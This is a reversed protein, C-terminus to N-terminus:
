VLGSRSPVGSTGTRVSHSSAESLYPQTGLDQPQYQPQYQVPVEEDEEYPYCACCSCLEISETNSKQLPEYRVEGFMPIVSVGKSEVSTWGNPELRLKMPFVSPQGGIQLLRDFEDRSVVFAGMGVLAVIVPALIVVFVRMPIEAPAQIPIVEGVIVVLVICMLTAMSYLIGATLQPETLRFYGVQNGYVIYILTASFIGLLGVLPSVVLRWEIIDMRRDVKLVLLVMSFFFLIWCILRLIHQTKCVTGDFIAGLVIIWIPILALGLSISGTAIKLYLLIEFVFIFFSLLGTKLGFKLSRQLLPLYETRDLHDTSDQRQRNENAETIFFSLARASLVHCIFLGAHSIWAPSLIIWYPIDPLLKTWRAMLLGTTASFGIALVLWCFTLPSLVSLAAKRVAYIEQPVELLAPPEAPGQNESLPKNARDSLYQQRYSSRSSSAGSRRSRDGGSRSSRVSRIGNHDYFEYSSDTSDYTGFQNSEGPLSPITQQDSLHRIGSRSSSIKGRVMPSGSNESTGAAGRGKQDREAHPLRSPRRARIAGNSIPRKVTSDIGGAVSISVSVSRSRPSLLPSEEVERRTSNNLRQDKKNLWRQESVTVGESSRTSPSNRM